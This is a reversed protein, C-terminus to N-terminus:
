EGSFTKKKQYDNRNPASYVGSGEATPLIICISFLDTIEDPNSAAIQWSTAYNRL